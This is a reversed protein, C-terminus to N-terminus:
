TAGAMALTRDPLREDADAIVNGLFEAQVSAVGNGCMKYRQADSIRRGDAGIATHDDPWSQLRECEVPVLRRVVMDPTLVEDRSAGGCGALLTNAVDPEGVEMLIDGERGRRKLPYAVGHVSHLSIGTGGALLTPAIEGDVTNHRFGVIHPTDNPSPSHGGAQLTSVVDDSVTGNRFDVASPHCVALKQGVTLTAALGDDKVRDSSLEKPFVIPEVAAAQMVQPVGQGLKGSPCTVAGAIDTVRIEGRQNETVCVPALAILPADDGDHSCTLANVEGAPSAIAVLHGAQASRVDAGNRMSAILASVEGDAGDLTGQEPMARGAVTHLAQLLMPPLTRGKRGARVLIGNASKKSLFYKRHVKEIPELLDALSPRPLPGDEPQPLSHRTWADGNVTWGGQNPWSLRSKPGAGPWLSESPTSGTATLMMQAAGGVTEVTKGALPLLPTPLLHAANPDLCAIVFVRFRRQPVGFHRADLAGWEITTAGLEAFSDLVAAFDRGGTSSLAGGVNEWMVWRPYRGGTAERMERIVRVGEFFLSSTSGESFGARLGAVSLSQCPSGFAILDVPELEAGNMESVDAHIPIDPWHRRLVQQCYPDWDAMWRGTWGARELGLDLGGVGSFMTGFTRPTLM